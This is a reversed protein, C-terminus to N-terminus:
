EPHTEMGIPPAPPDGIIYGLSIILDRMSKLFERRIDDLPLEQLVPKGSGNQVRRFESWREACLQTFDSYSIYKMTAADLLTALKSIIVLRNHGDTGHRYDDTDYIKAFSVEKQQRADLLTEFWDTGIPELGMPGDEM